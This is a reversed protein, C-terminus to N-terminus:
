TSIYFFISKNYVIITTDLRTSKIYQIFSEFNSKELIKDDHTIIFSREEFFHLLEVPKQNNAEIFIPTLEFIIIDIGYNEILKISGLIANLECGQCDMKLLNIHENVVSDITTIRITDHKRYYFKSITYNDKNDGVRSNGINGYEYFINTLEKKQGAGAEILIFEGELHYNEKMSKKILEISPQFPEFGIVKHGNAIYQFACTGINSGIEVVVMKKLNLKNKAKSIIIGCDDWYGVHNFRDSVVDPSPHLYLKFRPNTSSIKIRYNIPKDITGTSITTLNLKSLKEQILKFDSIYSILLGNSITLIQVDNNIKFLVYLLLIIFIIGVLKVKDM